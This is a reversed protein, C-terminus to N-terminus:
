LLQGALQPQRFASVHRLDDIQAVRVRGARGDLRHHLSVATYLYERVQDAAPGAPLGYRVHRDLVDGAHQQLM